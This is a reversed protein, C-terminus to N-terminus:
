RDTIISVGRADEAIAVANFAHGIVRSLGPDAGREFEAYVPSQAPAPISGPMAAVASAEAYAVAGLGMMAGASDAGGNATVVSDSAYVECGMFSGKYGPGKLALMEATPAHFQLAGGESRLSEQLDTFQTPYLVAAFPGPVVAQELAFIAAFFDDVTMDVQTTGVTATFDDIVGCVQDTFRLSYARSVAEALQQIGLNGAAGTIMMLDSIEFAIIQHAVTLSLASDSIATNGAATTENVNAAAMPLDYDVQPTELKASGSGGLDGLRVCLQRLDTRDYVLEWILRNFVEAARLNDGQGTYTIENAM